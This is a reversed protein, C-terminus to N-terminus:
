RGGTSSKRTGKILGVHAPLIDWDKAIDTFLRPDAKIKAREEDSLARYHSAKLRGPEAILQLHAPKCCLKNQCVQVPKHGKPIPGVFAMYSVHHAAISTTGLRMVGWEETGNLAGDWRWCGAPTTRCRDMIRDKVSEKDAEAFYTCAYDPSDSPAMGKARGLKGSTKRVEVPRLKQRM